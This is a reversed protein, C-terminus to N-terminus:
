KKSKKAFKRVRSVLAPDRILTRYAYWSDTMDPDGGREYVVSDGLLAVREAVSSMSHPNRAVLTVAGEPLPEQYREGQANQLAAALIPAHVENIKAAKEASVYRGYVWWTVGRGCAGHFSTTKLSKGHLWEGNKTQIASGVVAEASYQSSFKMRGPRTAYQEETATALKYYTQSGDRSEKASVVAYFENNYRVVDGKRWIICHAYGGVQPLAVEGDVVPPFPTPVRPTLMEAKFRAAGMVETVAETVRVNATWGLSDLLM